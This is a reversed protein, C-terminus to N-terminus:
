ASSWGAAEWQLRVCLQLQSLIDKHCIQPGVTGCLIRTLPKFSPSGRQSIATGERTCSVSHPPSLDLTVRELSNFSGRGEGM